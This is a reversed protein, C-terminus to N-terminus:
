HDVGDIRLNRQQKRDFQQVTKAHLEGQWVVVDVPFVYISIAFHMAYPVTPVESDADM